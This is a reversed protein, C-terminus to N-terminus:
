PDIRLQHKDLLSLVEPLAFRASRLKCRDPDIRFNRATRFDAKRLDADSFDTDRLESELFSAEKLDAGSFDAEAIACRLFVTGPMTVKHFVCQNLICDTFRADLGFGSCQDFRLGLLKCGEFTM